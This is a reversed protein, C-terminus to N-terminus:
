EDQELDLLHGLKERKTRLYDRNKANPTVQIPVREVIRLGYGEVGVVKKPNNTLLRLQRVGLDLLIQAGIGYHRLDPGFGLRHNAEVTDLGEEQQLKYARLKSLLGIGRGEQRMYLVVGKGAQAVQALAQHLQPGCDCMLSELLDGTLCQSHIRVLVPEEQVPVRGGVEVGVGGLCLALHPEPDVVSTYVVLDFPTESFTTPLKLSLERKILRERQRRHQILDEITCMKISHTRCFDHLQPVRAMRGNTDLIECIVAAEQFGAMRALDTSGETHGARVLVGGPHARLGDMHGPRVLDGSQTRSDVAVRITRCRDFASTGTEIGTRADFKVTFATGMRSTNVSTQPDLHLRDCMENSMALCLIGRGHTLMFNITEPTAKEAAIVLDGENERHEDDVLVIMRGARLEEIAEEIPCFGVKDDHM